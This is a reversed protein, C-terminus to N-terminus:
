SIELEFDVVLDKSDSTIGKQRRPLFSMLDELFEPVPELGSEGDNGPARNTSRSRSGSTTRSHSRNNDRGNVNSSASASPPPGIRRLFSRDTSSSDLRAHDQQFRAVFGALGKFEPKTPYAEAM